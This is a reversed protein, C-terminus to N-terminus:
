VYKLKLSNKIIRMVEIASSISTIKSYKNKKNKLLFRLQNIFDFPRTVKFKKIFKKNGTLIFIKEELKECFLLAIKFILDSIVTRGLM